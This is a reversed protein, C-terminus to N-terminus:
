IKIVMAYIFICLIHSTPESPTLKVIKDVNESKNDRKAMIGRFKLSELPTHYSINKQSLNNLFYHKKRPDAAASCVCSPM